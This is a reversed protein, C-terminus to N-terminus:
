KLSELKKMLEDNSDAYLHSYTNLTTDLREHGLRKSIAVPNVGLHILLSAHSHRLDHVRIKKINVSKAYEKMKKRYHEVHYSFLRDSSENAYIKSRYEKMIKIVDETVAIVRKSGSTKPTTILIRGNKKTYTKNIRITNKDFDVDDYTLALMEGIRMGTWFLLNYAVYLEPDSVINIFKNFEDVTWIHMEGASRKGITGAKICPNSNLNHFKVAFNLIASLCSNLLKLYTPKYGMGDKNKYSLLENQFQRVIVPTIEEIYKDAFIPLIKDEIIGQKSLFTTEKIRNKIDNLYLEALKRFTIDSTFNKTSLFEREYELAEKKTKFGRKFSQKKEGTYTTYYFRSVWTGNKDKTAPM